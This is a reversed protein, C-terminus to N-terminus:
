MVLSFLSFLSFKSLFDGVSIASLQCCLDFSLFYYIVFLASLFQVTPCHFPYFFGAISVFLYVLGLQSELFEVVQPLFLSEPFWLGPLFDGSHILVLFKWLLM